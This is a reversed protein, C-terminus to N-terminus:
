PVSLWDSAHRVKAIEDVLETFMKIKQLFPGWTSSMSKVHSIVAASTDVAGQIPGLSSPALMMHDVAGKGQSVAEEMNLGTADAASVKSLATITFELSIQTKCQNGHSGDRYLERTIV